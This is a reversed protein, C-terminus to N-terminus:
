APVSQRVLEGCCSSASRCRGRIGHAHRRGSVPPFRPASSRRRRGRQAVVASADMTMDLNQFLFNTNNFINFIDWRFQLKVGNKLPFNKYFALDTQFYGPVLATAVSPTASRASGSATSPTPARTSSRSTPDARQRPVARGVCPKATQNDTFGTGSPGGTLGSGLSGTYATLPQGTGAASSGRSKGTAWSRGCAGDLPGRPQVVDLHDVLQLHADARRRVGGTWIPTRTTWRAHYERRAPRQRDDRLERAFAVLHVLGPVALRPRIAVRVADAALSLDVRRHSGLHRHQQQRLRRVSAVGRQEHPHVGNRDDVGNGNVDGNLVQNAVHIKLLDYGYNAVYAVEFSSRGFVEQQYTLNWQWNNPTRM